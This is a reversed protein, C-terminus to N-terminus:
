QDRYNIRYKLCLIHDRENRSPKYSALGILNNDSDFAISVFSYPLKGAAIRKGHIDFVALWPDFGDKEKNLISGFRFLNGKRDVYIKELWSTFLPSDLPVYGTPHLADDFAFLYYNEKDAPEKRKYIDRRDSLGYLSSGHIFINTIGELQVHELRGTQPDFISIVYHRLDGYRCKSESGIIMKDNHFLLSNSSFLYNDSLILPVTKELNMGPLTYRFLAGYSSTGCDLIYAQDDHFAIERFNPIDLDNYRAAVSFLPDLDYATHIRNSSFWVHNKEDVAMGYVGITEAREIAHANVLPFQQSHTLIPSVTALHSSLVEPVNQTNGPSYNPVFLPTIDRALLLELTVPRESAPFSDTHLALQTTM